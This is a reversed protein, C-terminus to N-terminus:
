CIMGPIPLSFIGYTLAVLLCIVVGAVARSFPLGLGAARLGDPCIRGCSNTGSLHRQCQVLLAPLLGDVWSARLQLGRGRLNIWIPAVRGYLAVSELPAWWFCGSSGLLSGLPGEM